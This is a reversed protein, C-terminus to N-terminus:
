AAKPTLSVDYGLAQIRRALRKAEVDPDHRRAFFDAGPDEYLQGNSLLHWITTIMSNAM